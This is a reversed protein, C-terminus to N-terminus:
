FLTELNRVFLSQNLEELPTGHLLGHQIIADRQDKPYLQAHGCARLLSQTEELTAGMGFCLCILRNRSPNRRGSFIQHLYVESMCARKALNAKSIGKAKYLVALQQATSEALFQDQNEKLFQELDATQDLERLLENTDKKLFDGGKCFLEAANYYM